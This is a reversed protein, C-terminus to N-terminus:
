PTLARIARVWDVEVDITQKPLGLVELTLRVFYRDNLQYPGIRNPLAHKANMYWETVNEPIPLDRFRVTNSTNDKFVYHGMEPIPVLCESSGNREILDFRLSKAIAVKGSSNEFRLKLQSDLIYGGGSITSLKVASVPDIILRVPAIEAPQNVPVGAFTRRAANILEEYTECVTAATQWVENRHAEFEAMDKIQGLPEFGRFDGSADAQDKVPSQKATANCETMYFM